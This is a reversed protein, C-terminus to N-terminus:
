GRHGEYLREALVVLMGAVGVDVGPLPVQDVQDFGELAARIPWRGRDDDGVVLMTSEPVVHRRRGGGAYAIRPTRAHSVRDQHHGRQEGLGPDVMGLLM